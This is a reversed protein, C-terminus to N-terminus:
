FNVIYDKRNFRPNFMLIGVDYLDFSLIVRSDRLLREWCPLSERLQDLVLVTDAHIYDLIQAKEAAQMSGLYIFDYSSAELSTDWQASPVAACMYASATPSADLLLARRPHVFNSVRFLLRALKQPRLHLRRVWNSHLASLPRYAYYPLREYVVDTIFHFAYPSHVGYGCRKRFRCLWVFPNLIYRSM